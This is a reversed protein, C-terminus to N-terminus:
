HAEDWNDGVGIAVELPVDLPFANEMCNKIIDCFDPVHKKDVEFVLEDHVQMIMAAPFKLKAIEANMCIMALKILDAATGQLPANIAAREAAKRRFQNSAKIDPIFLRRGSLTEVYGNKEAFQRAKEMYAHVNPYRKFYIDMYKQAEDRSVSLQKSLGFASMGYLLGFNIAKAHRRMDSTVDNLAVGFVEAATAAHIDQKKAFSALLGPDKSLHAMIRLEIQSYDASVIKCNQPAIFAQRIKRGEERRIPINQLNPNNSSLRGTSTVAQNYSTHVRGTKPNIEEPLADTYTSKLKSLQRYEVIVNPLEYDLALEQLVEESTSPAGTPTKKLVPLKMQDFLIEQLQKPSSLNFEAGVLEYAHKELVDIRKALEVSQKKLKASDILVGHFEMNALIPMLPWEIKTLVDDLSKEARIKPMLTHHLQLAIDADEASYQTAVDIAVQDFTIQKAGKGAVEEFTITKYSLYKLALTDLDHRASTSNLVYSELLTDEMPATITLGHNKLVKYDYKLNQGIIIHKPNQLIPALHQLVHKIDLQRDNGRDGIGSVLDRIEHQLPIYFAERPQVCVSIGVLKASMADISTTETDLSIEKAANLKKLLASFSQEDQVAQYSCLSVSLSGGSSRNAIHENVGPKRPYHAANSEGEGGSLEKLWKTFEMESFIKKLQETDPDGCQLNKLEINLPIDCDITVLEKSLALNDLNNRLNEGIKGTIDNAHKVVEDLSGYKALWAAATKPGVKPIGPINDSTDGMLALYDIIQNPYVDFKEKVGKIDSVRDSMTNILTIHDDVLQAMDKDMTSILTNIGKKEAFVALTGIVDDAEIGDQIILPLGMARILEQLPLIQQRLEDPMAVRNAKYEPYIKHRATKGKPDFVVAIYDFAHTKMLKKIMNVVGYIAGTPFGASTSLPPLAHYARFLYSSGDILILNKGM